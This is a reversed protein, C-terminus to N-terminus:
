EGKILHLDSLAAAARVKVRVRGPQPEPVAVEKVGYELTDLSLQAALM